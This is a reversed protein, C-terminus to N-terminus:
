GSDVLQRWERIKVRMEDVWAASFEGGLRYFVSNNALLPEEEVAPTGADKVKSWEATGPLPSFEGLRPTAGLSLVYDITAEMEARRQGPLGM